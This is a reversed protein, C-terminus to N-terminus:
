LLVKKGNIINITNQQPTSLIQGKLNVIRKPGEMAAEVDEIGTVEGNKIVYQEVQDDVCYSTARNDDVGVAFVGHTAIRHTGDTLSTVDLMWTCITGDSGAISNLEPSVLSIFYGESTIGQTLEHTSCRHYDLEGETLTAGEPVNLYVELATLEITPNELHLTIPVRTLDESQGITIYLRNDHLTTEESHIPAVFQTALLFM